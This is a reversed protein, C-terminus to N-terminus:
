VEKFRFEKAIMTNFCYGEMFGQEEQKGLGRRYEVEAVFGNRRSINDSPYNWLGMVRMAEEKDLFMGFGDGEFSMNTIDKEGRKWENWIIWGDVDELYYDYNVLSSFKTNVHKGCKEDSEKVISFTQPTVIKYAVGSKPIKEYNDHLRNCMHDRREKINYERRQTKSDLKIGRVRGRNSVEYAPFGKITLWVEAETCGNECVIMKVPSHKYIYKSGSGRTILGGCGCACEVM